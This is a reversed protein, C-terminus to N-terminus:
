VRVARGGTASIWPAAPTVRYREEREPDPREFRPLAVELLGEGLDSMWPVARTRDRASVVVAQRMLEVRIVADPGTAEVLLRGTEPGDAPLALAAGLTVLTEDEFRRVAHWADVEEGWRASGRAYVEIPRGDLADLADALLDVFTDDVSGATIGRAVHSAAFLGYRRGLQGARLRAALEHLPGYGLLPSVRVGRGSTLGEHGHEDVV